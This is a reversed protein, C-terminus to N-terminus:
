RLPPRTEAPGRLADATETHDSWQAVSASPNFEAALKTLLKGYPENKGRTSGGNAYWTKM